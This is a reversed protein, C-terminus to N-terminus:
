QLDPTIPFSGVHTCDSLYLKVNSTPTKSSHENERESESNIESNVVYKTM